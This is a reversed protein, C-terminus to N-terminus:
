VILKLVHSTKYSSQGAEDQKRQDTPLWAEATVSCAKARFCRTIYRKPVTHLSNKANLQKFSHQIDSLHDKLHNFSKKTM